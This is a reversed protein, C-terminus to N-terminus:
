IFIEKRSTGQFLIDQNVYHSEKTAGTLHGSLAKLHSYPYEGGGWVGGRCAVTCCECDASRTVDTHSRYSVANCM